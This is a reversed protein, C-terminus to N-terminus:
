EDLTTITMSRRFLVNPNNLAGTSASRHLSFQNDDSVIRELNSVQSPVNINRVLSCSDDSNHDVNCHLNSAIMRKIITHQLLTAIRMCCKKSDLQKRQSHWTSLHTKLLYNVLLQNGSGCAYFLFGHGQLDTASLCDPDRRILTRSVHLDGMCCAKCLPPLKMWINDYKVFKECIKRRGRVDTTLEALRRATFGVHHTPYGPNVNVIQHRLKGWLGLYFFMRLFDFRCALVAMHLAPYSEPNRISLIDNFEYGNRKLIKVFEAPMRTRDDLLDGLLKSLASYYEVNRDKKEFPNFGIRRKVIGATRNVEPIAQEAKLMNMVKDKYENIIKVNLKCNIENHSLPLRKM